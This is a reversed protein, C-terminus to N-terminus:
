TSFRFHSVGRGQFREFPFFYFSSPFFRLGLKCIDASARVPRSSLRRDLCVFVCVCALVTKPPASSRVGLYGLRQPHPAGSLTCCCRAHQHARTAEETPRDSIIDSRSVARYRQGAAAAAAYAFTDVHRKHGQTDANGHVSRHSREHTHPRTCSMLLGKRRIERHPNSHM